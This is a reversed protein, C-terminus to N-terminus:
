VGCVGEGGEIGVGRRGKLEEKGKRGRGRFMASVEVAKEVVSKVPKHDAPLRAM